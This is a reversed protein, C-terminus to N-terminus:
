RVPGGRLELRGAPNRRRSNMPGLVLLLAFLLGAAPVSLAPASEFVVRAGFIDRETGAPHPEDDAEWIVAIGHANGAVRPKFPRGLPSPVENVLLPASWSAGGDISSVIHADDNSRWASLWRGNVYTLDPDVNSTAGPLSVLVPASWTSGADTSRSLHIDRESIGTETSSWVSLWVGSGDTEIRVSTDLGGDTTADTNLLGPASWTAGDDLSRSFLVDFDTGSGGLDHDSRWGAIWTGADDTALASLDDFAADGVAYTNLVAPPSWSVGDDTSRAYLLDSDNGIGGLDETSRWIAIWSGSGSGAIVVDTDSGSDTTANSNLASPVSWSQGADTSRSFFIDRDPGSTGAANQDSEWAIIWTGADNTAVDPVVDDGVGLDSVGEAPSWSAGGDTSRAMAVDRVSAPTATGSLRTAHWTAVITSDSAAIQPFQDASAVSQVGDDIAGYLNVYDPSSVSQALAASALLLWSSTALGVSRLSAASRSM